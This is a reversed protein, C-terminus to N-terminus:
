FPGTVEPYDDRLREGDALSQVWKRLMRRAASHSWGAVVPFRCAGSLLAWLGVAWLVTSKGTGRPAACAMGAGTRISRAAAAIIDRHVQGWPLPFAAACYWRLWAAPDAELRKRREPDACQRREILSAAKRRDRRRENADRAPGNVAAQAAEWQASLAAEDCGKCLRWNLGLALPLAEIGLTSLHNRIATMTAGTTCVDDVLLVRGPASAPYDMSNTEVPGSHHYKRREVTRARRISVGFLRQLHSETNPDHGPVVWVAACGLDAAAQEVLRRWVEASEGTSKFRFVRQSALAGRTDGMARLRFTSRYPLLGRIGRGAADTAYIM